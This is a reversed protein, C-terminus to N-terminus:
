RRQLTVALPWPDSAGAPVAWAEDRAPQYEEHIVLVAYTRGTEVRKNLQFSGDALTAGQAYILREDFRADVWEDLTVGPKLLFVAAGSVSRRSNDADHVSGVVNVTTVKPAGSNATVRFGAAQARQGDVTITLEYEGVPLGGPHAMSLWATSVEGQTWAAEDDLVVEGNFRWTSRLLVGNRLGQAPFIAYVHDITDFDGAPELPAGNSGVGRAFAIPGLQVSEAGAAEGLVVSGRYLTEEGLSLKLEYLGDPLGSESSLTLTEIGNAARPQLTGASAQRGDILWSWALPPAGPLNHVEFSAYLTTLATGFRSLGEVVRGSGDVAAGYAVGTIHPANAAVPAAATWRDFHELALDGPRILSIKGAAEADTRGASPVGIFQGADNVALGGSNGRNVEADTKIWEVQGNRDEDLYGSVTGETYTVTEGGLGPFGLVYIPDGILLDSSVGRPVDVLGLNAPLRGDADEFPATVQLVALDIQPDGEIMRAHYKLVPVSRLNTPNVGIAAEGEENFLRGTVTDGMVHFNTLIYGREADLVTGSGTSFPLGTRDPVIVQVTALLARQRQDRDLARAPLAGGVSGLLALACFLAAWRGVRPRGQIRLPRLNRLRLRIRSTM